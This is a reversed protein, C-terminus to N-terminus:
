SIKELDGNKLHRDMRERSLELTGRALQLYYKEGEERVDVPAVQPKIAIGAGDNRIVSFLRKVLVQMFM